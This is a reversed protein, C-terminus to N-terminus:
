KQLVENDIKDAIRENPRIDMVIISHTDYDIEDIGFNLMTKILKALM